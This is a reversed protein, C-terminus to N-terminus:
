ILLLSLALLSIYLSLSSDEEPIYTSQGEVSVELYIGSNEGSFKSNFGNSIFRYKVSNTLSLRRSSYNFPDTFSSASSTFGNLSNLMDECIYEICSEESTCGPQPKKVFLTYLDNYEVESYRIRNRDISGDLVNKIEDAYGKAIEPVQQYLELYELCEEGVYDCTAKNLLLTVERFSEERVFEEWESNCGMCMVGALHTVVAKMCKAAKEAFYKMHANMERVPKQISEQENTTIILLGPRDREIGRGQPLSYELESGDLTPFDTLLRGSNKYRQVEPDFDNFTDRIRGIFSTSQSSLYDAYSQISDKIFVLTDSSCCSFTGAQEYCYRYSNGEISKPSSLYPPRDLDTIPWTEVRFLPNNCSSSSVSLLHLSLVILNLSFVEM